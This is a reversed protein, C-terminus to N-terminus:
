SQSMGAFVPLPLCLSLTLAALTHMYSTWFWKQELICQFYQPDKHIFTSGLSSQFTTYCISYILFAHASRHGHKRHLPQCFSSFCMEMAWVKEYLSKMYRLILQVCVCECLQLSCITNIGLCGRTMIGDSLLLTTLDM